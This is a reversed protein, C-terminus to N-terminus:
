PRLAKGFEGDGGWKCVCGERSVASGAVAGWRDIVSGLSSENILDAVVMATYFRSHLFCAPEKSMARASAAQIGLQLAVLALAVEPRRTPAASPQYPFVGHRGTGPMM